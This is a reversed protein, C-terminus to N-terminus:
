KITGILVRSKREMEAIYYVPSSVFSAIFKIWWHFPKVTVHCPSGDPLYNSDLITFILHLQKESISTIERMVDPLQDEPIHELVDTTIVADVNGTGKMGAPLEDFGFIAPDFRFGRIGKMKNVLQSKGCGYDLVTKINNQILIPEILSQYREGSMGYRPDTQHKLKYQDILYEKNM